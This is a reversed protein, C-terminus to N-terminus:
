NLPLWERIRMSTQGDQKVYHEIDVFASKYLLDRDTDIELGPLVAQGTVAAYIKGLASNPKFTANVWDKIEMQGEFPSTTVTIELQQNGFKESIQDVIRSIM